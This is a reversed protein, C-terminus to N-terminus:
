KERGGYDEPVVRKGFDGQVKGGANGNAPTETRKRIWLPPRSHIQNGFVWDEARLWGNPSGPEAIETGRPLRHVWSESTFIGAGMLSRM